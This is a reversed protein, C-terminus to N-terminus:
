LALPMLVWRMSERRGEAKGYTKKTLRRTLFAWRSSAQPLFGLGEVTFCAATNLAWLGREGTIIFFIRGRAVLSLLPKTRLSYKKL